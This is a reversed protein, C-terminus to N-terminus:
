MQKGGPEIDEDDDFFRPDDLEYPRELGEYPDIEQRHINDYSYVDYAKKIEPINSCCMYFDRTATYNGAIDILTKFM